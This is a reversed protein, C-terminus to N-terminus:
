DEKLKKKLIKLELENKEDSIETFHKWRYFGFGFILSGFVILVWKYITIERQLKNSIIIREGEFDLMISKIKLENNKERLRSINLAIEKKLGESTSDILSRNKFLSEGVNIQRRLEGVESKVQSIEEILLSSQKHFVNTEFLLNQRQEFSYVIGFLVMALGGIFLFKYLNDSNPFLSSLDM